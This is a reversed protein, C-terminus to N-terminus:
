SPTGWIEGRLSVRDANNSSEDWTAPMQEGAANDIVTFSAGGGSTDYRINVGPGGTFVTGVWYDVALVYIVGETLSVDVAESFWGAPSGVEITVPALVRTTPVDGDFEYLSVEVYGPAGSGYFEVTKLVHDAGATWQYEERILAEPNWSTDSPGGTQTAIGNFGVYGLLEPEQGSFVLTAGYYIKEVPDSGFNISVVDSSGYKM